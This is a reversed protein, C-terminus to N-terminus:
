KGALSTGSRKFEYRLCHIIKKSSEQNDGEEDSNYMDLRSALAASIPVNLFTKGVCKTWNIFAREIEKNEKNGSIRAVDALALAVAWWQQENSARSDCELHELDDRKKPDHQLSMNLTVLGEKPSYMVDHLDELAKLAPGVVSKTKVYRAHAQQSLKSREAKEQMLETNSQRELSLRAQIKQNAATTFSQHAVDARKKKNKVATKWIPHNEGAIVRVSNAKEAWRLKQNLIATIQHGLKNHLREHHLKQQQQTNLQRQRKAKAVAKSNSRRLSSAQSARVDLEKQREKEASRLQMRELVASRRLANTSTSTTTTNELNNPNAYRTNTNAPIM